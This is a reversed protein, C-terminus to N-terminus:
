KLEKLNQKIELRWIVVCGFVTVKLLDNKRRGKSESGIIKAGCFAGM